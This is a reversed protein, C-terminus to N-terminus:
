DTKEEGSNSLGPVMSQLAAGEMIPKHGLESGSRSVVGQRVCM